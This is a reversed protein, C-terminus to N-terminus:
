PAVSTAAGGTGAPALARPRHLRATFTGERAPGAGAAGSEAVRVDVRKLEASTRSVAWSARWTRGDLALTEGGDQAAGFGARRISDLVQQAALTRGTEAASRRSHRAVGLTLAAVGTVGVALLVVAVLVEVLGFGAERRDRRGDERRNERRGERRGHRRVTRARPRM